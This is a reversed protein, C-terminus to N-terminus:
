KVVLTVSGKKTLVVKGDQNYILNVYYYTGTPLRKGNYTGDWGQDGRYLEKGWRNYVIIHYGAMFLDNIQDGDPTFANPPVSTKVFMSTTVTCGDTTTADVFVTDAGLDLQAYFLQNDEGEQLVAKRTYFKYHSLGAPFCRLLYNGVDNQLSLQPVDYVLVNQVKQSTCGQPNTVWVEYATSEDPQVTIAATQQPPATNWWYETGGSATLTTAKGACLATDGTITIQPSAHIILSPNGNMNSTCGSQLNVAVAAYLGSQNLGTFALPFGSGEKSLNSFVGNVYLDYRTNPESASLLLGLITDNDCFTGGGQLDFVRPNDHVSVQALGDMLATCGLSNTALVSYSGAGRQSGFNLPQGTGTRQIGTSSANYFLQYVDGSVSGELQIEPADGDVCYAGGGTVKFTKPTPLVTVLVSDSVVLNGSQVKVVYWTDITPYVDVKADTSLLGEPKSQWYYSYQGNGGTPVLQLSVETGPCVQRKSVLIDVSIQQSNRVFVMVDDSQSSCASQNDVVQLSFLQSQNLNITTPQLQSANQLLNSPSWHYTYNGSGGSVSGNLTVAQGSEITKDGGADAQPAKNITIVASGLMVKECGGEGTFAKAIYTGAQRYSGFNLTNGTGKLEKVLTEKRYLRYFVGTDSGSLRLDLTGDDNECLSGGGTLEYNVPPQHVTILVSDTQQNQGDSLTVFYYTSTDPSVVVGDNDSVFGKPKSYWSFQYNGNGGGALAQLHVSSGACVEKQDATLSLNLSGNTLFVTVSDATSSCGSQQDTVNLLFLRTSELAITQTNQQSPNQLYFGPSWHYRYSGSGGEANGQLLVSSGSTTYVDTGAHAVPNELVVIQATDAMPQSCGSAPLTANVWYSGSTKWKGWDISSGDGLASKGTEGTSRMLSYSVGSESGNLTLQIGEDQQCLSGGGQLSFVKPAPKVRITVSDTLLTTGDNLMVKYTTTQTPAVEPNYIEASFSAPNSLWLYHYDASGGGAMAYLKVKEGPCISTSSALVKLQLPGGNVFVVAQDESGQCGTQRDTAKLNFLTSAHLAKTLTGALSANVLSDAPTWQFSYLGSGGDAGGQLSAQGGFAVTQDEGAYAVPIQATQITALGNMQQQCGGEKTAKVFYNGSENYKGFNLAQGNGVISQLVSGPEKYLDYQVGKESGTLGVLVGAQGSCSTGGGTINFVRPYGNVEVLVSDRAYQNGDFVEVFYWTTQAPRVGPSQKQSQFSEPQSHWRYSYNGSGGSALAFLSVTTQECSKDPNASAKVKLDTGRVYVLVTDEDSVCHTQADIASFVFRKSEHLTRSQTGLFQPHEVSSAPQWQYTYAGSGGSVSAQLIAQSGDPVIQDTGADVVPTNYVQVVATGNMTDSCSTELRTAIVTYDGKQPWVGFDLPFGNGEVTLKTPLGDRLLSYSTQDESGSLVLVDPDDGECVSGGGGMQFKLPSRKVYIKISDTLQQHGDDVTVYYTTTDSPTVKPNYLVSQFGFPNSSWQYTYDGSGGSALAFLQAQEGPCIAPASRNIKLSLPGGEVFVVVDDSPGACQTVADKAHLTFVNTQHLAVSVPTEDTPNLLSDAPTWKYLYQGSGGTVNPKLTVQVGYGVHQDAGAHVQPLENVVVEANGSMRKECGNKGTAVVFYKGAKSFTGFDMATGTGTQELLSNDPEHFLTYSAGNDSGKLGISVGQDNACIAGGGSMQYVVPAAEVIVKVSDYVHNLGDYVDLFYTTTLNPSAITNQTKAAFGGPKSSWSYVYNGTGGGVNAELSVTEGLCLTGKSAAATAYLTSSTTYVQLSDVASVCSTQQDTAQFYFRTSQSLVYTRSSIGNPNELYQAPTWRYTYDGSGESVTANLITTSGATISQDPGADVVPLSAVAVDARGNMDAQCRTQSHTAVVTYEGAESQADFQIPYTNGAESIGMSVGNRYLTYDVDNESGSLTIIKGADGQCINGGGSVEFIKPSANVEVYVSDSLSTFGDNVTVKYWENQTPYILPAYEESLFGSQEGQWLYTFNGNGGSALAILKVQEGPCVPFDSTVIKLQVDGGTVFVVADDTNSRCGRDDTVQLNFVTTKYLNRTAPTQADPNLLSDAPTWQYSYTGSGGEASGSLDAHEGQTIHSDPGASAVPLDYIEIGVSDPQWQVCQHTGTAKVFYYGARTQKGFDLAHGTGSVSTIEKGELYLGYQVDLESGSLQIAKGEDGNCFGGGGSLSFTKPLPLADIRISDYVVSNGDSLKLKYLTTQNPYVVPNVQTSQFGVPTSTWLYTYNGTGGQGMGLLSVADGRCVSNKDASINLQLPGSNVFVVTSDSIGTCGTQNDTVDLTFLTSHYLAHTQTKAQLPLACLESPSWQYLYEGSGGTAQGELQTTTGKVVYQDDGAVARPRAHINVVAHGALQRSCGTKTDLALVTYSGADAFHGFSIAYGTGEVRSGTNQGNLFVDYTIDLQSTDLLIEPGNDGSCADGGGQVAFDVPLANEVVTAKGNMNVSCGTFSHYAVVTYIGPDKLHGFDIPEGTGEKVIGTEVGDIQLDYSIGPESGDLGISVGDGGSCYEGGGTVTHIEPTPNVRLSAAVTTDPCTVHKIICRYSFGNMGTTTFISLDSTTAGAYFANDQINLWGIGTNEQWQYATGNDARVSFVAVDNKCVETNTPNLTVVPPEYVHLMAPQSALENQDLDSVVCRYRYGNLGLNADIIQLRPTNQGEIYPITGDLNIWGNGDNEQWQYASTNVAIIEFFASSKECVSTDSPQTVIGPQAKAMMPLFLVLCFVIFAAVTRSKRISLYLNVVDGNM